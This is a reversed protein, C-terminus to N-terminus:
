EELWSSDGYVKELQLVCCTMNLLDEELEFIYIFYLSCLFLDSITPYISNMFVDENINMSMFRQCIDEFSYMVKKFRSEFMDILLESNIEQNELRLYNIRSFCIEYLEIRMKEKDISDYKDFFQSLDNENDLFTKILAQFNNSYDVFIDGIVKEVFLYDDTSIADQYIKFVNSTQIRSEESLKSFHNAFQRFSFAITSLGIGLTILFMSIDYLSPVCCSCYNSNISIIFIVLGAVLAAFGLSLFVFFIVNLSPVIKFKLRKSGTKIM